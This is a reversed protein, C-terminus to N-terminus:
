NGKTCKASLYKTIHLEGEEKSRIDAEVSRRNKSFTFYLPVSIRGADVICLLENDTLGRCDYIKSESRHDKIVGELANESESIALSLFLQNDEEGMLSQGKCRLGAFSAFYEDASKFISKASQKNDIPGSAYIAPCNLLIVAALLLKKM